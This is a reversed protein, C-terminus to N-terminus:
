NFYLSILEKEREKRWVRGHGWEESRKLNMVEKEKTIITVEIELNMLIYLFVETLGVLYLRRLSTM